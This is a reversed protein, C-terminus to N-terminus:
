ITTLYCKLSFESTRGTNETETERVVWISIRFNIRSARREKIGLRWDVMLAMRGLEWMDKMDAWKEHHGHGGGLVVEKGLVAPWAAEGVEGLGSKSGGFEEKCQVQVQRKYFAFRTMGQRLVKQQSGMARLIFNRKRAKDLRGCHTGQRGETPCRCHAM